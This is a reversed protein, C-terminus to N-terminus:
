TTTSTSTSNQQGRKQIPLVPMVTHLPRLFLYGAFLVPYQSDDSPLYQSLIDLYQQFSVIMQQFVDVEAPDLVFM